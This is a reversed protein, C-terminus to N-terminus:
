FYSNYIETIKEANASVIMTVYVGNQEVKCQEIMQAQEPNYDKNQALKADYRLQLASKVREAAADDAAKILVIEEMDVGTNNIGGAYEAADEEAIGYYKDLMQASSIELMDSLEVQSKIDAYIDSLPKSAGKSGGCAVLCAALMIVACLLAIIRKM